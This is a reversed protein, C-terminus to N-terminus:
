ILSGSAWDIGCSLQKNPQIEVKNKMRQQVSLHFLEQKSFCMLPLNVESIIEKEQTSIVAEEWLPPLPKLAKSSHLFARIAPNLFTHWWLHRLVIFFLCYYVPSKAFSIFHRDHDSMSACTGSPNLQLLLCSSQPFAAPCGMEGAIRVFMNELWFTCNCVGPSNRAKPPTHIRM